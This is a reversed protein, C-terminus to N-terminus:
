DLFLAIFGFLALRTAPTIDTDSFPHFNSAYSSRRWDQDSDDGLVEITLNKARTVVRSHKQKEVAEDDSLEIEFIEERQKPASRAIDPFLSPLTVNALPTLFEAEDLTSYQRSIEGGDVETEELAPLANEVCDAVGIHQFTPPTALDAVTETGVALPAMLAGPFSSSQSSNEGSANRSKSQKAEVDNGSMDTQTFKTTKITKRGVSLRSGVVSSFYHNNDMTVSETEAAMKPVETVTIKDGDITIVTDCHRDIVDDTLENEADAHAHHHYFSTKMADDDRSGDADSDVHNHYIDIAASKSEM